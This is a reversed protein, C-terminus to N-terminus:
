SVKTYKLDWLSKLTLGLRILLERPGILLGDDVYMMFLGVCTGECQLLWAGSELPKMVVDGIASGPTNALVRFDLLRNREEEWLKPAKRLGYIAKIAGDM